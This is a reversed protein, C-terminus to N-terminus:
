KPALALIEGNVNDTKPKYGARFVWLSIEIFNAPTKFM